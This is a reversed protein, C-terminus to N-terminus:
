ELTATPAITDPLTATSALLTIPAAVGGPVTHRTIAVNASGHLLNLRWEYVPAAPAATALCREFLPFPSDLVQIKRKELAALHCYQGHGPDTANLCLIKCAAPRTFSRLHPFHTQCTKLILDRLTNADTLHLRTNYDAPFLTKPLRRPFNRPDKVISLCTRSLDICTTYPAWIALSSTIDSKVAPDTTYDHCLAKLFLTTTNELYSEVIPVIVNPLLPTLHPAYPSAPLQLAQLDSTLASVQASSM